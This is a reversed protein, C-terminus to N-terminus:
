SLKSETQKRLAARILKGSATRPLTSVWEYQAPVKYPELHQAAWSSLEADPATPQNDAVVLFARLVQGAIGRPDSVGVCAAESVAPHEALVREVEDPSVNFGGINVMDDQRGHLHIFGTADVHAVDGTRVWGDVFNAATLETDDWYGSAVHNGSIWLIGREGSGCTKGSEDRVEVQVGPAPRGVTELHASDRHFEIFASRSAETLGYHMFLSTRPLLKMLARKHEIPMPASGIEVYRLRDAFPGLGREGFRLLVAFGAPVGVLATAAHRELAVFIEGPLRFGQVLVVTAGASLACRLRGLGFSHYLPIPVVEVDGETTGIVANIHTAAAAVNRHTLPVGKPRGTTGTTFVLDALSELAPPRFGRQQSPLRDLEHITTSPCPLVDQTNADVGFALVPQTRRVIEDRRSAPAYPDIPICVAGLLHTAFYGYAFAPVSPAALLVREGQRVGCDSLYGAAASVRGWLEGYSVRQDGHVLAVREPHRVARQHLTEVVSHVRIEQRLRFQGHDSPHHCNALYPM